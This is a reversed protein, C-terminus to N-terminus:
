LPAFFLCSSDDRFPFIATNHQLEASLSQCSILAKPDIRGNDLLNGCLDLLYAIMPNIDGDHNAAAIDPASM